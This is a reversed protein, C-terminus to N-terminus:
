RRKRWRRFWSWALLGLAALPIVVGLSAIMSAFFGVFNRWAQRVAASIPNEGPTNGILPQPEHLNVTLTSLAVRNKLFRLRGEMQDIETRVRALEREVALVDQLRGTRAALLEILRTELKRANEIRATMDVFEEGVDQANTQAVEVRGIATLAAVAEDYSPSPIRIELMAGRVQDRGGTTSTNTIYGGVKNALARVQAIAPDLKSVELTAYGTRIMMAPTAAKPQSAVVPPNADDSAVAPSMVATASAFGRPARQASMDRKMQLAPAGVATVADQLASEPPKGRDCAVASLAIACLITQRITM